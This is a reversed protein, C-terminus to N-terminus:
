RPPSSTARRRLLRREESVPDEWPLLPESELALPACPTPRPDAAPLLARLEQLACGRSLRDAVVNSAGQLWQCRFEFGHRAAAAYLIRLLASMADRRSRMMRVAAVAAQADCHFLIRQGRWQAGWTVAAQTLAYLEFFPMSIRKHVVAFRLLAESWEGQLWHTNYFAGYGKDCADSYIHLASAPTWESEVISRRNGASTLFVQLWWHADMRAEADLRHTQQQLDGSHRAHKIRLMQARIRRLFTVGAPIVLAAFELKGVLSMLEDCTTPQGSGLGALQERLRHVREESLRYEMRLTDIVIGLFVVETVPGTSKEEALPVGLRRCLQEVAVRQAAAREAAGAGPPTVLLFDDVYHVVLEVGLHHQMFYHLAAAFEEWRYGSTRLGFPLVLEYYYKGRWRMGLLPRDQPRVPIRKFAASVDFKLLLAGRGFRRIGAIADAFRQMSYEERPIGANVSDGGFPHSLNHILRIKASGPKPVAGLPSVWFPHFPPADFPGRKFGQAVEAAIMADILRATEPPSTSAANRSYRTDTFQQQRTFGVDVGYLIGDLLRTALISDYAPPLRLQEAWRAPDLCTLGTCDERAHDTAM